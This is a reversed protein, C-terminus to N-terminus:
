SAYASEATMIKEISYDSVDGRIDLMQGQASMKWLELRAEKPAEFWFLEKPMVVKELYFNFKGICKIIVMKNTENQYVCEIM